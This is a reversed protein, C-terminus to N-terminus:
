AQGAQAAYVDLHEFPPQSAPHAVAAAGVACATRLAQEHSQGSRLALVLAACFADGAGVTNVATARVGAARAIERGHEFLAAGDAGYTVAVLKAGALEPLLARETENVIFLDVREILEDALPLAPAANVALYGPARRALEVVVDMAIELQTLVTEDETFGVGELSVEANAGDCVVIQNEADRDVVILATGSARSGTKVNGVDVGAAEIERRMWVGDGDDGVAGVMRVSAGLRAAASAQNAGKGGISRHLAGGGVTEGPGPLREAIATLDANISGVVLLSPLTSETM